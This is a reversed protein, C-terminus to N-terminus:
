KIQPQDYVSRTDRRSVNMLRFTVDTYVGAYEPSLDM